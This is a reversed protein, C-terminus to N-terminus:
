SMQHQAQRSYEELKTMVASMQDKIHTRENDASRFTQQNQKETLNFM